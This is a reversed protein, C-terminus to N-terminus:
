LQSIKYKKGLVYSDLLDMDHVTVKQLSVNNGFEREPITLLM